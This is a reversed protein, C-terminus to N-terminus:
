RFTLLERSDLHPISNYSALSLREGSFLFESYSCNRSTWMLDLSKKPPLDLVMSLSASIPGASTFVVTSSSRPAAARVRCIAASVRDRFAQWTEVEDIPIEGSAWHGAVIEFLTQLLKGAEPRHQAAVFQEYLARFNDDRAALVPIYYQGVKAADFEDVDPLIVPDPWPLGAARVVEGAIECTRRHRQAPGSYVQDFVFRHKAWFVGLKQAQVEGTQSLRDYDQAM